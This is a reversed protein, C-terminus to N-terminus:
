GATVNGSLTVESCGTFTRGFPHMDDVSLPTPSATRDGEWRVHRARWCGRRGVRLHMSGSWGSGPDTEISCHWLGPKYPFPTCETKGPVQAIEKLDEALVEGASREGFAGAAGCGALVMVLLCSFGVAFPM